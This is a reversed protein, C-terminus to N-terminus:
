LHSCSCYDHKNRGLFPISVDRLLGTCEHCEWEENEGDYSFMGGHYVYGCFDCVDPDLMYYHAELRSYGCVTCTARHKISNYNQYTFNHETTYRYYKVYVVGSQLFTYEVPVTNKNHTWVCCMGWKSEVRIPNTGIVIGSHAPGYIDYYVIIDSVQAVNDSDGLYTSHSDNIYREVGYLTINDQTETLGIWKTSPTTSYWAYAHCNYYSSADAVFVLDPFSPNGEFQYRYFTKETGTLARSAYWTTVEKGSTTYVSSGIQDHNIEEEYLNRDVYDDALYNTINIDSENSRRLSKRFMEFLTGSSTENFAIITANNNLEVFEEFKVLMQEISQEDLLNFYCDLALLGELTYRTRILEMGYMFNEDPKWLNSTGCEMAKKGLSYCEEFNYEHAKNLFNEYCEILALAADQRTELDLLEPAVRKATEYAKELSFTQSNSFSPSFVVQEQLKQVAAEALAVTERSAKQPEQSSANLSPASETRTSDNKRVDQAFTPLVLSILLFVVLFLSITKKM